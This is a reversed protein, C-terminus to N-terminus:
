SLHRLKSKSQRSLHRLKSKSQRPSPVDPTRYRQLLWSVTSAARGLFAAVESLTAAGSNLAAQALAARPASLVHNRKPSCIDAPSVAYRDAIETLLVGLKPAPAPRLRAPSPVAARDAPQLQAGAVWEGVPCDTPSAGLFALYATVAERRSGGFNRLVQDADLWVPAPAGLYCRHSSWAYEAPDRVMGAGVPNLHVYRIAQLLYETDTILRARYRREFLHGTTPVRRQYRRAYRSALLQVLSGLPRDAVQVIAHIHNTMWCYALIRSRFRELAQGLIDEFEDRDDPTCFIANRHNGRLIAHYIGGPVHVRPARPM